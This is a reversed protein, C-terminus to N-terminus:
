SPIPTGDEREAAGAGEVSADPLGLRERMAPRLGALDALTLKDLESLFAEVARALARTLRCTGTFVCAAPGDGLCEVLRMDGELARVVAGMRIQQPDGKLRLGGARGRVGQVLGLAVLTQAVKMLHNKSVRHRRALEDITVVRDDVVALTMLVRLAYDTHVTLRM